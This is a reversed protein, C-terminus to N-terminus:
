YHRVEWVIMKRNLTGCPVGFVTAEIIPNNFKDLLGLLEDYDVADLKPQLYLKAQLGILLEGHNALGVRLSNWEGRHLSADYTLCLGYENRTLEFQCIRPTDSPLVENFDYMSAQVGQESLWQVHELINDTNLGERFYPNQPTKHRVYVVGKYGSALMSQVDPWNKFRNGFADAKHMQQQLQKDTIRFDSPVEIM